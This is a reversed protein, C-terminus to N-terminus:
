ENTQLLDLGSYQVILELFDTAAVFLAYPIQYLTAKVFPCNHLLHYLNQKAKEYELM